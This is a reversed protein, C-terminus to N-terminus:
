STLGGNILLDYGMPLVAIHLCLLYSRGQVNVLKSENYKLERWLDLNLYAWGWSPIMVRASYLLPGVVGSPTLHYLEAM